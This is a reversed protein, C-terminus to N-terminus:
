PSGPATLGRRVYIRNDGQGGRREFGAKELMEVLKEAEDRDENVELLISRLQPHNLTEQAGKMIQYETGDVDIKIHNPEALAFRRKFEDLRYSITPLTFVPEYFDGRQDIPEGLSHLAGGSTLNEYNFNALSESDSLAIPLPTIAGAKNLFINKCLQPFTVFGPEFAFIRAQGKLWAHAVLSYAGVNAGIDYFVDGPEFWTEIWEITEPEKRCSHVRVDHEIWSDVALLIPYRDYDLRKVVVSEERILLWLKAPLLRTAWVGAKVAAKIIKQKM